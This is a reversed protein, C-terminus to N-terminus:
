ESLLRESCMEIQTSSMVDEFALTCVLPSDKINIFRKGRELIHTNEDMFTIFEDDTPFPKRMGVFDLGINMARNHLVMRKKSRLMPFLSIYDKAYERNPVKSISLLTCMFMYPVYPPHKRGYGTSGNVPYVEAFLHRNNCIQIIYTRLMGLIQPPMQMVPSSRLIALVFLYKSLLWNIIQRRNRPPLYASVRTIVGFADEIEFDHQRKYSRRYTECVSGLIASVGEPLDSVRNSLHNIRGAVYVRTEYTKIVSCTRQASDRSYYVYEGVSSDVVVTGCESCVTGEPTSIRDLCNCFAGANNVHNALECKDRPNDIFFATDELVSFADEIAQM